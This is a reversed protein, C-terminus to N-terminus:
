EKICLLGTKKVFERLMTSERRLARTEGESVNLHVQRLKREWWSMPKRNVHNVGPGDNATFVLVGGTKLNSSLTELLNPTFKEEIHEAAEVCWIADFKVPFRVACKTLDNFYIRNLHKTKPNATLSYDGDFGYADLGLELAKDVQGGVSCGVDLLTVVCYKDRLWRLAGEDVHTVNLHGGM